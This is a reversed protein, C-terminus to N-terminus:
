PIPLAESGPGLPQGYSFEVYNGAP